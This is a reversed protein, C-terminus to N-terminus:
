RVSRYDARVRLQDWEVTTDLSFDERYDVGNAMVRVSVRMPETPLQWDPHKWGYLYSDPTWGWCSEDRFKVAATVAEREKSAFDMVPGYPLKSLDVATFLKAGEKEPLALPATPEPAGSWRAPLERDFVQSGDKRFFTMWCRVRPTFPGANLIFVHAGAAVPEGTAPNRGMRETSGPLIRFGGSDMRAPIDLFDSVPSDPKGPNGAIEAIADALDKKFKAREPTTTWGYVIVFYSRLDSPSYKLDQAALVSGRKLAHRAGLEYAVNPRNGTLDALVLDASRLAEVIGKVFNGPASPSRSSLYTLAM